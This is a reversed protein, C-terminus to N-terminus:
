LLKCHVFLFFFTKIHLTCVAACNQRLYEANDTYLGFCISCSNVEMRIKYTKLTSMYYDVVVVVVSFVFPIEIFDISATCVTLLWWYFTSLFTLFFYTESVLLVARARALTANLWLVSMLPKYVNKVFIHVWIKSSYYFTTITCFISDHLGM